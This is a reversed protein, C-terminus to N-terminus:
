CTSCIAVSSAWRGTGRSAKTSSATEIQVITAPSRACLGEISTMRYVRVCSAPHATEQCDIGM